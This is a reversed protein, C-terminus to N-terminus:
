ETPAVTCKCTSPKTWIFYVIGGSVVTDVNFTMVPCCRILAWKQMIVTVHRRQWGNRQSNPTFELRPNDIADVGWRSANSIMLLSTIKLLIQTQNITALM